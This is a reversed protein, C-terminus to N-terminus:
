SVPRHDCCARSPLRVMFTANAEAACASALLTKGTGPPGHMLLGHPASVGYQEYFQPQALVLLVTTDLVARLKEVGGLEAFTSKHRSNFGMDLCRTVATLVAEPVVEMDEQLAKTATDIAAQLSQQDMNQSQEEPIAVGPPLVDLVTKHGDVQFVQMPTQAESQGASEPSESGQQSSFVQVRWLM